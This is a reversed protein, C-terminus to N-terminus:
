CDNLASLKRFPDLNHTILIKPWKAWRLVGNFREWNYSRKQSRRNLWKFLMKTFQYGFARCMTSNDTIAYYNLYGRLVRVAWRMTEGAKCWTRRKKLEEKLIRLKARFKKKSTRRKVKFGGYRTRGCYHTFGLFDFQDPKKGKQKANKEAYRGFKLTKTKSPEIELHFKNLRQEMRYRYHCAEGYNQFCALFDDAYRFYYAEGQCKLRFQKEFWLDLVYHLYVNSLLPSLISGQPTGEENPRTLGDEMIGAKLMRWVLRLVRKDKIRHSLFTILWKHNVHDFFGKIDAEVVNSVKRQQITRGLKDLAQHCSRRPRYGHSSECFEPEYIQELVRKTAMEVVKDEISSIGLPRKKTTGPKPIYTRRSPQPRYGLRQLRAQLDKLNEELNRGYEEKSRGDVGTAKGDEIGNFSARLNDLDTIFHYISTFPEKPYRRAREGIRTLDRAMTTSVESHSVINAGGRAIVTPGKAGYSNGQKTAVKPGIGDGGTMQRDGLTPRDTMSAVKPSYHCSSPPGGPEGEIGRDQEIGDAVGPRPTDRTM